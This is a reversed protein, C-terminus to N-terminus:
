KNKLIGTITEATTLGLLLAILATYCYILQTKVEVDPTVFYVVVMTISFLIAIARKSSENTKSLFLNAVFTILNKM